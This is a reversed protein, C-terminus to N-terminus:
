NCSFVDCYSNRFTATSGDNLTLRVYESYDDLSANDMDKEVEEAEKGSIVEVKIVNTYPVELLEAYGEEYKIASYMKVKVRLM